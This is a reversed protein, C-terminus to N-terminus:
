SPGWISSWCLRLLCWSLMIALFSTQAAELVTDGFSQNETGTTPPVSVPKFLTTDIDQEVTVGDVKTESYGPRNITETM